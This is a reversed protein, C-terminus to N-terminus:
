LSTVLELKKGMKLFQMLVFIKWRNIYQRNIQVVMPDDEIIITHTM